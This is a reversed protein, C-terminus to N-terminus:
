DFMDVQTAFGVEGSDESRGTFELHHRLQGWFGPAQEGYLSSLSPTRDKFDRNAGALTSLSLGLLDIILFKLESLVHKEKHAQEVSNFLLVALDWASLQFNITRNSQLSALAKTLEQSRLINGVHLTSTAASAIQSPEFTVPQYKPVKNHGDNM